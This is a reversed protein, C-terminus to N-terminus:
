RLVVLAVVCQAETGYREFFEPMSVGRQFKVKNMPMVPEWPNVPVLNRPWHNM